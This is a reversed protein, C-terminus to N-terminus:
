VEITHPRQRHIASARDGPPLFTLRVLHPSSTYLRRVSQFPCPSSSPHQPKCQSSHHSTSQTSHCAIDHGGADARFKGENRGAEQFLSASATICGHQYLIQFVRTLPRAMPVATFITFTLMLAAVCRRQAHSASSQCIMDSFGLMYVTQPLRRCSLSSLQLPTRSLQVSM